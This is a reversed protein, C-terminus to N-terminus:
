YASAVSDDDKNHIMSGLYRFSENPQLMKDRICIEVEENHTIESFDCRLYEPKKDKRPQCTPWQRRTGRERVRDM